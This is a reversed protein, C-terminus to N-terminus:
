RAEDAVAGGDAAGAAERRALERRGARRMPEVPPTRGTMLRVQAVAQHVLMGLGGVAVRGADSAACLLPTVAPAYVVDFVAAARRAVDDALADAAGAPLTSVVLDAHLHAAAEALPRPRIDVGIREAAEAVARTRGTDRVLVTVPAGVGLDHLAALASAATAGAGLVTASRPAGVGAERLAAVVGAVDTNYGHRGDPGFVVTNVGGVARATADCSDVLDVAARKLPMTLSLGVWRADLSDLLGPLESEGCELATYHWDLGLEAYASRHLVPSLSHAIPSGLVAARRRPDTPADM